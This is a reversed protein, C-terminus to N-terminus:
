LGMGNFRGVSQLVVMPRSVAKQLTRPAKERLNALHEADSKDVRVRATASQPFLGQAEYEIVLKGINTVERPRVVFRAFPGNFKANGKCELSTITWQGSALGSLGWTRKGLFQSSNELLGRAGGEAKAVGVYTISCGLPIKNKIVVADLVVIGFDPKEIQLKAAWEDGGPEALASGNALLLTSLAAARITIRM